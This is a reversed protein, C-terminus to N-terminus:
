NVSPFNKRYIYIPNVFTQNHNKNIPIWFKSSKLKLISIGESFKQPRAFRAPLRVIINNLSPSSISSFLFRRKWHSFSWVKHIGMYGRAQACHQTCDFATFFEPGKYNRGPTQWFINRRSSKSNHSRCPPQHTPDFTLYRSPTGLRQNEIQM